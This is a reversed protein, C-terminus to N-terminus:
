DLRRYELFRAGPLYLLTLNFGDLAEITYCLVDGTEADRRVLYEGGEYTECSGRMSLYERPGYAGDYINELEAGIINFQANPDDRAYWSGQLRQLIGDWRTSARPGVQRLVIDATRDYVAELDGRVAIPDGPLYGRLARMVAEPTRGDDYVSFKAGDAHFSCFPEETDSVCGQFIASDSGYPDGWTGPGSDTRNDPEPASNPTLKKSIAEPRSISDDFSLSFDVGTEGTFVSRFLSETFGRAACDEDGVITFRSRRTCFTYGEDDFARGDAEALYYYTQYELDGILPTKCQGPDINWWGASTWGKDTNYGVAVSHTTDTRNCIELEALAPVPLLILGALLGRLPIPLPILM